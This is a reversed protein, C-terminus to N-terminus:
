KMGEFRKLSGKEFQWEPTILGEDEQYRYWPSLSPENPNKLLHVQQAPMYSQAILFVQEGKDDAATDVVIVAHGPFGGRIFVDGAKIRDNTPVPILEKSLSQTGAYQFVKTLYRRFTTYTSSPRAVKNWTTKRKEITPRFGNQWDSWKAKSGDTFHFLIEKDRGQSRLFEAYLRIVADACQQLDRSGVDMDAVADHAEQNGKEEGNFLLVKPRGKLLPLRRLWTGFSKEEEKTRVFGSPPTYRSEITDPAPHDLWPYPSTKEDALTRNPAISFVLALMGLIGVSKLARRCNPM